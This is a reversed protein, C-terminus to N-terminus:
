ARDSVSERPQIELHGLWGPHPKFNLFPSTRDSLCNAMAPDDAAVRIDALSRVGFDFDKNALLDAYMRVKLPDFGMLRTAVMDVALYNEGGLLVSASTPDPMLPGNNDGGIVGDVVSFTRRQPTAQLRGDKDSFLFVKFLDVAMRWASDNGHWNGADLMRKHEDVKLGLRRTTHNHLWYVSRHLCELSRKRSALLHDYMWRETKILREETKTFLGDPYQDGGRSPPTLSYHVLFNKNTAIGVLGKINLTVRVKKHVKLKPVSIVVDADMVTKSLQYEQTEGTHRAITEARQYVAGYLKESHPKGSLASKRGLNVVTSGKPDGPLKELLSSFHKGRSWYDRLDCIDVCPGNFTKYFDCVQGLGTTALLEDFNCDYQPSDAIVIRGKGKLAIWCFDAVARLISPHTIISYVDKGGAHRSLVFNPKLLVTMGPKVLYGLPNWAKTGYNGHDLELSKFLQRVAPYVVNAEKSLNNAFPYEPYAESPHYPVESPYRSSSTRAIAVLNM